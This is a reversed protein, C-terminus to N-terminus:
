ISMGKKHLVVKFPLSHFKEMLLTCVLKLLDSIYFSKHGISDLECVFM